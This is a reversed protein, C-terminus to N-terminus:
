IAVIRLLSFFSAYQQQPSMFTQRFVLRKDFEQTLLSILSHQDLRFVFIHLFVVPSHRFNRIRQIKHDIFLQIRDIQRVFPVVRNRSGSLIRPKKDQGINSFLNGLNLLRHFILLFFQRLFIFHYLSVGYFGFPHM